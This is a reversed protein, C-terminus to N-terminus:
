LVFLFKLIKAYKQMESWAWILTGVGKHQLLLRLFRGKKFVKQEIHLSFIGRIAPFGEGEGGKASKNAVM